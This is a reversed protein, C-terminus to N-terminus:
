KPNWVKQSKKPAWTQLIRPRPQGGEEKPALPGIIDPMREVAEVVQPHRGPPPLAPDAPCAQCRPPHPLPPQACCCVAISTSHWM